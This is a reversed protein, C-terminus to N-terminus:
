WCPYGVFTSHGLSTHIALASKILPLFIYYVYYWKYRDVQQIRFDSLNLGIVCLLSSLNSFTEKVKILKRSFNYTSINYM